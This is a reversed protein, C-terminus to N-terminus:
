RKWVALRAAAAVGNMALLRPTASNAVAPPPYGYLKGTTMVAGGVGDGFDVLLFDEGAPDISHHGLALARQEQILMVPARWVQRVLAAIDAGETWHLNPSYLVEGKREDV